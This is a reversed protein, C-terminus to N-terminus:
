KMRLTDGVTYITDTYYEVKNDGFTAVIKYRKGGSVDSRIVKEVSSVIYPADIVTGRFCSGLLICGVLLGLLKKM